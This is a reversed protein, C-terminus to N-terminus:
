AVSEAELYNAFSARTIEEASWNKREFDGVWRGASLVGIRDCTEMLEDLDSSVIVLSKGAQALSDFLRYIRRRASIDIGRTPEDFLFVKADRILWKSIAVKQQNGGSLTQVIQEVGACKTELNDVMDRVVQRERRKRIVGFKSFLKNMSSLSSNVRISQNLMLGDHKRDESAMALGAAVAESPHKFFTAQGDCVQVSGRDAVDAGFVLRLLETRGSGVLGAIGLREGEKVGFSVGQVLGSSIENVQFKINDKAYCQFPRQQNAQVGSMLAIMQDTTLSATPQTGVLKGDRLVTVRDSLTAVEALRHSIYVIGVGSSRFKRLCDFLRDTEKTSLAATPEDLILLRCKRDLASAIEVMQQRGVGLDGMRADTAVDHLGFRDLAQRARAALERKRIVGATRPMRNLLVNEAVTLNSIQNLEQQVIEVGSNEASPKGTPCYVQGNLRMSGDSASVLGAIIKCLTSKGAGNAGLIAHIEGANVDFDVGDLVTINGYRKTLNSTSLLLSM